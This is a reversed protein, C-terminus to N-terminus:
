IGNFGGNLADITAAASCALALLAKEKTDGDAIVDGTSVGSIRAIWANDDDSWGVTVRFGDTYDLGIDATLRGYLESVHSRTREISM